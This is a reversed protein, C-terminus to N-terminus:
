YDDEKQKEHMLNTIDKLEKPAVAMLFLGSIIKIIAQGITFILAVVFFGVVFCGIAWLWSYEQYVKYTAMGWLIVCFIWLLFKSLSTLNLVVSTLFIRM